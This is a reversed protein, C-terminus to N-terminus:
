ACSPLSRSSIEIFVPFYSHIQVRIRIQVRIQFHFLFGFKNPTVFFRRSAVNYNISASNMRGENPTMFPPQYAVNFKLSAANM